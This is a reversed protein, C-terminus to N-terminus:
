LVAKLEFSKNSSKCHLKEVDTAKGDQVMVGTKEANGYPAQADIVLSYEGPKLNQIEFSGNNISASVSDSSSTPIAWATVAKDAPSVTGKISSSQQQKFTFASIALAIIASGIVAIKTNKM